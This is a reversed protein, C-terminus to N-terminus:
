FVLDERGLERFIEPIEKKWPYFELSGSKTVTYAAYVNAWEMAEKLTKKCSLCYTVAALFGDGAGTEDVMNVKVPPCIWADDATIGASGFAGLTMVVAKCQYQELLKRGLAEWGINEDPDTGSLEYSEGENVCLVDVYPMEPLKLGDRLPSPNLLTFMGLEKGTKCATLGSEM